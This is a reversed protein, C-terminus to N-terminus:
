AGELAESLPANDVFIRQDTIKGSTITFITMAPILVTVANHLRWHGVCEIVM